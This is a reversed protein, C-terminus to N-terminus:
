GEETARPLRVTFCTGEDKQTDVEIDGGLAEVLKNVISLGLGAGEYERTLGESEQKFAEFVRPLAEESIGVGTDEVALTVWDPGDPRIRITVRGGDPTFKIANDLLNSLIRRAASKDAYAVVTDGTMEVAVTVANAETQPEFEDVIRKALFGLRVPARDIAYSGAELQSLELVAELTEELRQGSKHILRALKAPHGDLQGKLIGSFGIMSTLPTRVEHSMNALMVTKLRAVEEAKQKARRLQEEQRKQDDIDEVLAVHKTEEDLDLLSATLRGWFVEGGKRVYRKEIQYRDRTGERLEEFRDADPHVDNPHTIDSFHRGRLEEEDYGLMAQFAPNARHLRGEEDGVVIGIAANEFVRRFRRESERLQRETEKRETVDLSATVVGTVATGTGERLPTATVDYVRLGDSQEFLIEERIQEGREFARQKLDMLQDIGSGSDLEDARKGIVTSPDTDEGLNCVWEYRLEEDVKAFTVPSHKLATRYRREVASVAAAVKQQTSDEDRREVLTGVAEALQALLSRDAEDFSALQPEVDAFCVTGYPAGHVEVETGVYTSLLTNRYAPEDGWGQELANEVVLPEQETVVMGCYTSLLDGTLGRTLDPHAGSVEDITYTHGAPDARVLLGLEVGFWDAGLELLQAIREQPPTENQNLIDRLRQLPPGSDQGNSASSASSM